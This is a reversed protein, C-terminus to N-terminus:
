ALRGELREFQDLDHGFIVHEADYENELRKIRRVSEYWAKKDDILAGGIPHEERYNFGQHVADGAIIITGPDDCHVITGVMGPSHGPFRVLEIGEFPSERDLHLVQWNLDRHFDSVVYPNHDEGTAGNYYAYKLEEEHVIIPTDTGEFHALGGAHDHHLHSQIVYDIDDVSYGLDGLDSALDHDAADEQEVLNYLADPWYGEAADPHSGSDWLITGEPHEILVNHVSVEMREKTPNPNDMSALVAGEQMFSPDLNMTGRSFLEMSVEVM